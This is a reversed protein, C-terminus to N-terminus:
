AKLLRVLIKFLEESFMKPDHLLVYYKFMKSFHSKQKVDLVIAYPLIGSAEAERCAQAVDNIGAAGEYGDVDTPKGDTLLLILKLRHASKQLINTAHRIAPGLRTYGQAEIAPAHRYFSSWSEHSRKYFQFSCNHRTSSWIGVVSVAEIIQDFLLGAKGVAELSIDLVRRNAVWSDSSQSQDFLIIVEIDNFKKKRSMYWRADINQRSLKAGYDRIVEDIDIEDGEAQKKHWLPESFLHQIRSQWRKIQIRYKSILKDKFDENGLKIRIPDEILQCHNRMYQNRKNNWEPYFFRGARENHTSSHLIEYDIHIEANYISKAAEGGRTVKTLNLEDLATAHDNIQDDGSDMTRGGSYEDATELKEFSHMVPNAQEKNLDIEENIGSYTKEKETLEGEKKRRSTAIGADRVENKSIPRGFCPTSVYLFRPLLDRGRVNIVLSKAAIESQTRALVRDQWFKFVQAHYGFGEDVKDAVQRILNEQFKFYGPLIGDLYSNIEGSKKLFNIREFTAPELNSSGVFKLHQAGIIQLILNQYLKKNLNSDTFYNIREPLLLQTGHMGVFDRSAVCQIPSGNQILSNAFVDLTKVVNRFYLEGPTEKKKFIKQQAIKQFIKEFIDM